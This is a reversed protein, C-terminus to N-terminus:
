QSFAALLKIYAAQYYIAPEAWVWAGDDYAQSNSDTYAKQRPEGRPPALPTNLDAVPGGPMYGPAPGPTTPTVEAWPSGPAFWLHFTKSVSNEAGLGAMNTLYVKQLPNVGHLYHLVEQGRQIYNAANAADLGYIAMELNTAGMKARGSNSGWAYGGDAMHARYLDNFEGETRFRYIQNFQSENLKRDIIAQKTAVDANPLTTYYLLAEGQQASFMSWHYWKYAITQQWKAKVVDNFRAEGTLAYLYVAAAVSDSEQDEVSQDSDATRIEQTDCNSDKPRGQYWNWAKVARSKMDDAYTKLAAVNQMVLAAQAFMVATSITSSTCAPIYYRPQTDGSIPSPTRYDINGVKLLVGGDANQMKKLWDLEWKVEDLIDAIGNGSEPIGYDDSFASPYRQYATLLGTVTELAFTVYKNPDGADMWGGTLDRETAANGKDNVNRARADQPYKVGDAWAAGAYKAEHAIGQRQYYFVRVATKLVDKYV